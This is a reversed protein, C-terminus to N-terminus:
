KEEPKVSKAAREKARKERIEALATSAETNATRLNDIYIMTTKPDKHRAFQMVKVINPEKKSYETIALHRLGHTRGLGYKKVIRWLSSVSIRGSGKHARDFNTFLPGPQEGRISLWDRISKEIQPSAVIEERQPRKKAKIWIRHQNFDVHELDLSSAENRRLAADHILILIARDRISMPDNKEELDLIVDSFPDSGPGKTDRYVQMPVPPVDLVWPIGGFLRAIRVITKVSGLRRKITAPAYKEEVLHARYASVVMNANGQRNGQDKGKFLFKQCLDKFDRAGLWRGFTEIGRLDSRVTEPDRGRQIFGMIADSLSEQSPISPLKPRSELRILGRIKDPMIAIKPAQPPM